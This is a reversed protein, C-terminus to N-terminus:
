SAQFTGKVGRSGYTLATQHCRCHLWAGLFFEEFRRVAAGDRKSQTHRPIGARWADHQNMRQREIATDPVANRCSQVIPRCNEAVVAPSVSFRIPASSKECRFQERPIKRFQKIVDAPLGGSDCTARHSTADGLRKGPKIGRSHVREGQDVRRSPIALVSGLIPPLTGGRRTRFAKFSHNLKLGCSPEAIVKSCRM